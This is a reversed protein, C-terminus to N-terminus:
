TEWPFVIWQDSPAVYGCIVDPFILQKKYVVSVFIAETTPYNATLWDRVFSFTTGSDVIDDVVLVRKCKDTLVPEQLFNLKGRINDDTYSKAVLSIVKSVGLRHSIYVSPVYGGRGLGIITDFKYGRVSECIKDVYQLFTEHTIIHKTQAQM